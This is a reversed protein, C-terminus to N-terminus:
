APRSEIAPTPFPCASRTWLFPFDASYNFVPEKFVFCNAVRVIRGNYLDGDVWQGVEMLTTRLVGIDIVDGRISGLQVRHGTSYFRGFSLTIWGAVGFAVTLGSLRDSYVNAIVFITGLYGFFRIFKRIRYRTDPDSFRQGLSRQLLKVVGFVVVVGFVAAVLQGGAPDLLIVQLQDNLAEALAYGDYPAPAPASSAQQFRDSHYLPLFSVTLKM